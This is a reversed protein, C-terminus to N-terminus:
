PRFLRGRRRLSPRDDPQRGTQPALEQSRVMEIFEIQEKTLKARLAPDDRLANMTETYIKRYIDMTHNMTHM